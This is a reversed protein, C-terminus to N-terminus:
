LRTMLIVEPHNLFEDLEDQANPFQARNKQLYTKTKQSLGAIIEGIGQTILFGCRIILM